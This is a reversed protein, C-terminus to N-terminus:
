CLFFTLRFRFLNCLRICITNLAFTLKMLKVPNRRLIIRVASKIRITLFIIPEIVCWNFFLYQTWTHTKRKSQINSKFFKLRCFDCYKDCRDSALSIKFATLSYLKIVPNSSRHPSLGTTIFVTDTSTYLKWVYKVICLRLIFTSINRFPWCRCCYCHKQSHSLHHPSLHTNSIRFFM